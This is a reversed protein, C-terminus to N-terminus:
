ASRPLQEVPVGSLKSRLTATNVRASGDPAVLVRGEGDDAYLPPRDYLMRLAALHPYVIVADPAIGRLTERLLPAYRGSMSPFIHHEQHYSFNWHILDMLPHTTVSATNVFPNDDDADAAQLWHNTAIYIMLTVNGLLHPIVLLYLSALPGLWVGLGLWGLALMLTLGRERWRRFRIRSLEPRDAHFWLFLQGQATFFILFGLYSLVSGSGASMTHVLRWIGGERLERERPLIDPDRGLLNAGGHHASVHWARWTGPTVLFPAFGVWGLVDEWFRSRFVARHLAEHAAFGVTILNQSLIFSVLLDGYWPLRDTAVLWGLLIMFPVHALAVVGRWPQPEFAEAPMAKKLLGRLRRYDRLDVAGPEVTGPELAGPEVAGPEAAAEPSTQPDM